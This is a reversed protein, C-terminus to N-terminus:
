DMQIGSEPYQQLHMYVCVHMCAHMANRRTANCQVQNAHSTCTNQVSNCQMWAHTAHTCICIIDRFANKPQM